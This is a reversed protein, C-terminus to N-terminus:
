AAGRFGKKIEVGEKTMKQPLTLGIFDPHCHCWMFKKGWEPCEGKFLLIYM